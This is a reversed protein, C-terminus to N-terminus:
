AIIAIGENAHSTTYKSLKKTNGARMFNLQKFNIKTKLQHEQIDQTIKDHHDHTVVEM